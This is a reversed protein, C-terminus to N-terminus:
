STGLETVVDGPAWGIARLANTVNRLAWVEDVTVAQDQCVLALLGAFARAHMWRLEDETIALKRQRARLIHVEEDTVAFDSLASTLCDWYEGLLQHRAVRPDRTEPPVALIRPKLRNTIRLSAADGATYMPDSFSEMFKYSKLRALDRFTEVGASSLSATYFQWLRASALADSAAMHTHAHQVDHAACADVLSCRKGLGLLPRLYMLCLYPPLRPVGCGSLEAQVFRADFYVNYSSFVTGAIASVVNGALEEFTPADAVDADTIGHIETASVARRPNVLTELELTPAKSPEVRVVAIEVIRDGGAYLGTTELDVIALPTESIKRDAIGTRTDM